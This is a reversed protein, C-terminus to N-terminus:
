PPITAVLKQGLQQVYQTERSNDPLVPMQKYVEAAAQLGLARQNERSMSAKGPNPFEPATSQAHCQAAMGFLILWLSQQVLRRNMKVILGQTGVKCRVVILRFARRSANLADLTM